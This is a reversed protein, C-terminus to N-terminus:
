AARPLEFVFTSGEGLKSKAEITGRHAEVIGKAIALGLGVGRLLAAAGMEIISLPGRLDHSVVGLVEDRTRVARQAADYFAADNVATAGMAALM